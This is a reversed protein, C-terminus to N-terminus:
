ERKDSKAKVLVKTVKKWVETVKLQFSLTMRFTHKSPKLIKATEQGTAKCGRHEDTLFVAHLKLGAQHRLTIGENIGQVSALSLQQDLHGLLMLVLQLHTLM